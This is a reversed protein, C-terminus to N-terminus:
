EKSARKQTTEFDVIHEKQLTCRKVVLQHYRQSFTPCIEIPIM